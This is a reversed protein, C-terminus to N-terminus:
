THRPLAEIWDALPSWLDGMARRGVVMGVHGAASIRRDPLGAATAAPVIRDTSSVFEVTPCDIQGLTVNAGGVRWLGRGPRDEGVMAEFLERGFAYPLPPGANAWDELRIFAQAAASRPDLDAFAAYKDVTRAPDIQWFGAQLAEMPVLGLADAVAQTAAWQTRMAGTAEGYGSFHWPAAITALGAVKTRAAAALALTGGLCYGVLVPPTPLRAILPILIREVHATMDMARDGRGPTGWDLLWCRHGRAALWRVLSTERSLDLIAPPNILSPVFLVQRGDEPGAGRLRARGQRRRAPLPRQPRLRPADQFARLGALARAQRQPEAATESRLLALFLPLPRPGHQPAFDIANPNPM